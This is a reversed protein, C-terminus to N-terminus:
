AVEHWACQGLVTAPKANLKQNGVRRGCRQGDHVVTALHGVDDAVVDFNHGLALKFVAEQEGRSGASLRYHVEFSEWFRDRLLPELQIVEARLGGLAGHPVSETPTYRSFITVECGLRELELIETLIFTESLRPFCKVIYGLRM